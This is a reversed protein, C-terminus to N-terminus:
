KMMIIMLEVGEKEFFVKKGEPQALVTCVCNFCDEM